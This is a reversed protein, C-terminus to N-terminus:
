PIKPQCLSIFPHRRLKSLHCPLSPNPIAHHNHHLSSITAYPYHIVITQNSTPIHHMPKSTYSHHHQTSHPPKLNKSTQYPPNPIYTHM